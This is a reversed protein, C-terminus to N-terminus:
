ILQNNQEPESLFQKNAIIMSDRCLELSYESVIHQIQCLDGNSWNVTTLEISVPDGKNWGQYDRQTVEVYPLFIYDRYIKYCEVDIVKEGRM